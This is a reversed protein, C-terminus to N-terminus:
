KNQAIVAMFADAMVRHGATTLHTETPSAGHREVLLLGERGQLAANVDVLYAQGPFQAVTQEVIDNFAALIQDAGPVLAQVEPVSYQNAVFTKANPLAVSIQSLITRLTLAYRSLVQQAFTAIATADPNSQAFALIALLDNGGATLTLYHPRFGNASAPILAQPVQHLLVDMSTAAPVSANCFLTYPLQDFVGEQYLLYTFGKTVPVAKYGSSISDGLAMYRTADPTLVLPSQAFSPTTMLLLLVILAFNRKVM